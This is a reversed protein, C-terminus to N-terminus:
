HALMNVCQVGKDKVVGDCRGQRDSVTRLQECAHKAEKLTAYRAGCPKGTQVPFPINSEESSQWQVGATWRGQQLTWAHGGRFAELKGQACFWM